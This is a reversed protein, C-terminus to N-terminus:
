RTLNYELFIDAFGLGENIVKQRLNKSHIMENWFKMDLGNTKILVENKIKIEKNQNKEIFSMMKRIIYFLYESLNSEESIFSSKDRSIIFKIGLIEDTNIEEFSDICQCIPYNAFLGGDLLCQENNIEPRFIPPITSSNYVADIVKNDPHTKHSFSLLEFQNLETVYVYLEKNTKEFLQKFTVDPSVDATKFLPDCLM